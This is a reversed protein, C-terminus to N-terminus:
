LGERFETPTCDFWSKFARTFNSHDAFGLLLAVETIPRYQQQLYQKALEMRVDRLLATFNSGEKQLQRQLQRPSLCLREAILQQCPEGQPLLEKIADQTKLIASSQVIRQIYDQALDDQRAALQPDSYDLVRDAVALPFELEHQEGGFHVPCGYFDEFADPSEPDPRQLCVRSPKVDDPFISRCLTLLGAFGFDVVELGVDEIPIKTKMHLCVSQEDRVMNLTVVNTLIERFQVLRAIAESISASCLMALGLAHWHVPQCLHASTIGLNKDGTHALAVKWARDIISVEIRGYPNRLLDIDINAEALVEPYSVNREKLIAELATIWSSLSTYSEM